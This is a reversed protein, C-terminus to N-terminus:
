KVIHKYISEIGVTGGTGAKERWSATGSRVGLGPATEIRIIEGTSKQVFGSVTEGIAVGVSTPLGQGLSESRKVFETGGQTYTGVVPKNYATGTEYYLAYLNSDGLVSCVDNTPKYTTFLVMGGLVSSRSLVRESPSPDTPNDLDVYWGKAARSQTLLTQYSCSGTGGCAEQSLSSDSVQTASGTTSTVAVASTNLLDTVQYAYNNTSLTDCSSSAVDKWCRDKIGYFRQQDSNNLDATSRLRGSGFYVWLNGNIDKSLSPGVLLPGMDKGADPDANSQGYVPDFLTSLVWDDPNVSKKTNIRYVRGSTTSIASGIYITDVSFDLDADVVTPDGMIANAAGTDFTKVLSGNSLDVVFIKGTTSTNNSAYDRTSTTNTPGSGVVMFWKTLTGDDVRVIGPYSTTFGLAPSTFRWLLKPKKESDTVDLAYYASRFSQEGADLTDGDGNLDVDIAGGGLRLPLILITGWGRTHVDSGDQGAIGSFDNATVNDPDTYNFLRVDTAKPRQDVFYVHTYESDGCVSPDDATGNCALWALHPLNDYPLFAWLEDGLGVSGWGNGSTPSATFWGTETQGTTSSDDGTHYVGANFAHLLGDNAGVFVRQRRNQYRQTFSRYANDGYIQDFKEGPAAVLTPTSYVIDGLPWVRQSSAVCGVEQSAGAVTLCRSRYGNVEVGRVFDIIKGAETSDSARLYPQLTAAESDTFTKAEGTPSNFDGEDVVGDHNLDLWLYINRNAKNMLALRNGGEWISPVEDMPVTADITPNTPLVGDDDHILDVKVENTTTDLWMQAVRDESLVLHADPTGTGSTSSNDDRLNQYRDLFFSRLFGPWARDETNGEVKAPYFYAQYLAGEGGASTSLVSVSTGSASNKLIDLVASIIKSKLSSGGGAEFYTDALGDGNLDDEGADYANDGNQDKFGGYKAAKQLALAGDSSGSSFTNVVYLSLNQDGELDSRLDTTHAKYAVDDLWGGNAKTGESGADDTSRYGISWSNSWSETNAPDGYINTTDDHSYNGSSVLLVYSKVCPVLQAASQFCFPDYNTGSASCTGAGNNSWDGNAFRYATDEKYYGEAEYLAEALPAEPTPRQNRTDTMLSSWGTADKQNFQKVVSGGDQSNLQMIALRFGLLGALEGDRFDQLLGVTEHDYCSDRDKNLWTGAPCSGSVKATSTIDIKVQYDNSSVALPASPQFGTPHSSSPTVKWVMYGPTALLAEGNRLIATGSGVGFKKAETGTSNEVGVTAWKGGGYATAAQVEKYQFVIQNSGEYLLVQFTLPTTKDSLPVLNEFSVVQIRNPATGVTFSSIRSNKTPEVYLDDWYPAIINNPDNADLLDTNFYASMGSATFGLLGNTSLYLTTYDYGYFSFSFPLTISTYADDASSTYLYNVGSSPTDIWKYSIEQPRSSDCGAANGACNADSVVKYFNYEGVSGTLQSQLSTPNGQEPAPTIDGGVVVKKLIDFQTMTLWNLWNGSWAGSSNKACTGGASCSYKKTADFYGQYTKAADYDDSTQAFTYRCGALNSDCAGYAPRVMSKSYDLLFLINPSVVRPLFPPFATFDSIDVAGAASPMLNILMLAIFTAGLLYKKLNAM